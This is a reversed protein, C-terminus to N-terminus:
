PGQPDCSTSAGLIEDWGAERADRTSVFQAYNNDRNERVMIVPIFVGM